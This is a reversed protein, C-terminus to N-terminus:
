DNAYLFIERVEKQIEGETLHPFQMRLGAAKLERATWYLNMLAELKQAPTMNNIVQWYATNAAKPTAPNDM